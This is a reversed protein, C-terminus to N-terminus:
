RSATTRIKSRMMSSASTASLARPWDGLSPNLGDIPSYHTMTTTMFSRAVSACTSATM